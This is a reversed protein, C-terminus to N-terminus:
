GVLKFKKLLAVTEPELTIKTNMNLTLLEDAIAKKRLQMGAVQDSLALTADADVVRVNVSEAAASFRDASAARVRLNELQQTAVAIDAANELEYDSGRGRRGAGDPGNLVLNILREEAEVSAKESLLANVGSDANARSIATRIQNAARVLSVAETLNTKLTDQAARVLDAVSEDRHISVDLTRPFTFRKAAENLSREYDHAKRLSVTTM